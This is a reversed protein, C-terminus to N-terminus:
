RRIGATEQKHIAVKVAEVELLQGSLLYAVLERYCPAKPCLIEAERFAHQNLTFNLPPNTVDFKAYGNRVKVPEVGFLKCYFDVSTSVDPVNIVVHLKLVAWEM